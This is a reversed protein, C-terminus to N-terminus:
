CELVLYCNIVVFIAIVWLLVLEICIMILFVRALPSRTVVQGVFLLATAAIAGILITGVGPLWWM